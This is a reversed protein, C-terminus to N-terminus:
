LVLSNEPGVDMGMVRKSEDCAQCCSYFGTRMAKALMEPSIDIATASEVGKDKVCAALLGTGAGADLVRAGQFAQEGLTATTYSVAVQPLQYGWKHVQFM